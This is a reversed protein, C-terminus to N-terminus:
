RASEQLRGLVAEETNGELLEAAAGKRTVTELTARHDVSSIFGPPNLVAALRPRRPVPPRLAGQQTLEIRHRLGWIAEPDPTEDLGRPPM